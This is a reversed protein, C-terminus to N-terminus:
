LARERCLFWRRRDSRVCWDTEVLLDNIQFVHAKITNANARGGSYLEGAIEESTIGLDGAAAIMDIIAAKLQPLRIGFREHAIRQHCTPCTTPKHKRVQASIQM